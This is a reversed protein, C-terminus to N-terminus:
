PQRRAMFVYGYVDFRRANREGSTGAFTDVPPGIEVQQFGSQEIIRRWSACPL